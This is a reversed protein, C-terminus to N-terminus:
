DGLKIKKIISYYDSKFHALSQEDIINLKELLTLPFTQLRYLLDEKQFHLKERAQALIEDWSFSSKKAIVYLDFVDKPNDRSVIATIKNSLINLPNDLKFGNKFNFSGFRKVRDNVFDVQLPAKEAAVNVRIFDKSEVLTEIAYGANSIQGTIERVSYSFTSSSNTFLALDDSYREEYYFRHLCTGGTLYLETDKEFM